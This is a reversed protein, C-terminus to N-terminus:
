KQEESNVKNNCSVNWTYESYIKHTRQTPNKFMMKVEMTIEYVELLATWTEPIEEGRKPVQQVSLTIIDTFCRLVWCSSASKLTSTFPVTLHFDSSTVVSVM